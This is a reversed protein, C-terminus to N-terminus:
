RSLSWTSTSRTMVRPRCVQPTSTFDATVDPTIYSDPDGMEYVLQEKVTRVTVAGGTGAHKTVIFSGDPSVEVIPYGITEASQLAQSLDAVPGPSGPVIPIGAARGVARDAAAEHSGYAYSDVLLTEAEVVQWLMVTDGTNALSLGYAPYGEAKEWAYADGGFVLVRGGPELTGSFAFRPVRESDTLLFCSLDLTAAGGNHVEVWEDDRTSLVGNGDWDRAPGALFENLVFGPVGTPLPVSAVLPPLVAVVLVLSALAQHM